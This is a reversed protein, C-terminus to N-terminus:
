LIRTSFDLVSSNITSVSIFPLFILEPNDWYSLACLVSSYPLSYVHFFSQSSNIPGVVTQKNADLMKRIKGKTSMCLDTTCNKKIVLHLAACIFPLQLDRLLTSAHFGFSNKFYKYEKCQGLKSNKCMLGTVLKWLPHAIHNGLSSWM